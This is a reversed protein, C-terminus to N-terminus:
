LILVIFKLKSIRKKLGLGFGVDCKGLGTLFFCKKCM